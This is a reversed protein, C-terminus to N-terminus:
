KKIFYQAPYTLGDDRLTDDAIYGDPFNHFGNGVIFPAVLEGVVGIVYPHQKHVDLVKQFLAKRRAEDPEAQCADWNKWIERIPHDAPPATKKYPSAAYWHGYLPAWSGDDITALWRGPDAKVVSCRDFTWYSMQIEGDHNRQEFLTREIHKPTMKIGIAAWYQAVRQHQDDEASGAVSTHEMTIALPQGDSRLRMGDAGRILGLTDLLDNARRPDYEIWTKELEPDYEPSGQVPSAQRAKGLGQWVLDLLEARNIALNLAQRFDATDFLQALVPDPNTINPFYAGTSAARWRFTRYGGKKENEKYYTYSGVDMYRGQEDIQGGAVKLNLVDQSDFFAHEIKDIYPLQNGGTDVVWYYPNREMVIPDAPTPQSMRWANLVPLEPNLFWFAIYGQDLAGDKGWLDRWSAFKKGAAFKNIQDVPTYRPHYQKLYVSPALFTSIIPLGGGNTKALYLPLLPYPAAYKLTFTYADVITLTADQYDNGVRQHITNGPTPTIAPDLQIDAYWFKTDDTTVDSGDSWKIGKRIHFTYESADANTEWHEMVNAAIQITNPDPADWRVPFDENLKGPGGRDSLGKFARHWAGGYVGVEERPKIVRPNQGVRQEVPPLKGSKVLEALLPAESYQAPLTAPSGVPTANPQGVALTAPSPMGTPTQGAATPTETTAPSDCATVVGAAALTAALRLFRRRNLKNAEV